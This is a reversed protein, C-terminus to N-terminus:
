WYEDPHVMTKSIFVAQLLRIIIILLLNSKRDLDTFRWILPFTEELHKKTDKHPEEPVNFVERRRATIKDVVTTAAKIGEDIKRM